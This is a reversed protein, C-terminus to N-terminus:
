PGTCPEVTNQSAVSLRQRILKDAPGEAETESPSM